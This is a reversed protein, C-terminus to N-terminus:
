VPTLLLCCCCHWCAHEQLKSAAAAQATHALPPCSPACATASAPLPVGPRSAAPFSPWGVSQGPAVSQQCSQFSYASIPRCSWLHSRCTWSANMCEAQNNPITSCPCECKSRYQVKGYLITSCQVPSYQVTSYLVTSYQVTSRWVKDYQVTM